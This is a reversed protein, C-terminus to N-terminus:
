MQFSELRYNLIQGTEKTDSRQHSATVLTYFFIRLIFLEQSFLATAYVVNKKM